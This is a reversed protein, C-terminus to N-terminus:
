FQPHQGIRDGILDIDDAFALLKPPGKTTLLETKIKASRVAKELVDNFLLPSIVDGQKVGSHMEFSISLKSNARVKSMGGEMCIKTVHILQRPISFEAMANWAQDREISDYAQRFGIFINQVTRKYDWGLLQRPTFLQDMRSRHARFGAQYEGLINEASPILSKLLITPYLIHLIQKPSEM